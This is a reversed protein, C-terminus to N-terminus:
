KKKKFHLINILINENAYGFHAKTSPIYIHPGPGGDLALANKVNLKKVLFDGLEYLTVSRTTENFAGLVLYENKSTIGVIMRNSFENSESIMKNKSNYVLLPSCQIAEKLDTTIIFNKRPCIGPTSKLYLMGGRIHTSFDSLKKGNSVVLGVPVIKSNDYKNYGWFGGSILVLDDKTAVKEFIENTMGYKAIDEIKFTYDKIPLTIWVLELGYRPSNKNTIKWKYLTVNTAKNKINITETPSSYLESICNQSYSNLFLLLLNISSLLVKKM